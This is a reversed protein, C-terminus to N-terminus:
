SKQPLQPTTNSITNHLSKAPTICFLHKSKRETTSSQCKWETSNQTYFPWYTEIHPIAQSPSGGEM